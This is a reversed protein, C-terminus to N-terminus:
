MRPQSSAKLILLNYVVFALAIILIIVFLWLMFGGAGDLISASLGGGNKGNFANSATANVTHVGGDVDEYAMIASLFADKVKKKSRTELQITGSEGAAVKGLDYIVVRSGKSDPKLDSDLYQFNKPLFVQISVNRLTEDTNNAYFIQYRLDGRTSPKTNVPELALGVGDGGAWAKGFLAQKLAEWPSFVGSESIGRDEAIATEAEVVNTKQIETPAASPIAASGDEIVTPFVPFQGDETAYVTPVSLGVGLLGILGTFVIAQSIKM